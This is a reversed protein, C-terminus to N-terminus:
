LIKNKKVIPKNITDGYLSQARKRIVSNNESLKREDLRSRQTILPLKRFKAKSVNKIYKKNDHWEKDLKKMSLNQSNNLRRAFAENDTIIRQAEKKRSQVNLSKPKPLTGISNLILRTSTARKGSSIDTLSSLLKINNRNMEIKKELELFKSTSNNRRTKPASNDIRGANHKKIEKLKETHRTQSKSWFWRNTLKEDLFSKM